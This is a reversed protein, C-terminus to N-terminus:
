SNLPPPPIIPPTSAGPRLNSIPIRFDNQDLLHIAGAFSTLANDDAAGASGPATQFHAIEPALGTPMRRYMEYCTHRLQVALEM